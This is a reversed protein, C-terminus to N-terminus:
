PEVYLIYETNEFGAPSSAPSSAAVAAEQKNAAVSNEIWKMDITCSLPTTTGCTITSVPNPLLASVSAAWSILDHAAVLDPTCAAATPSTPACTPAASVAAALGGSGGSATITNGSVTITTTGNGLWFLRDVHMSASLSAAELAALSRQRSGNSASVALGQMSAIGLLGVSIVILAVMVEVLTFGRAPLAKTSRTSM